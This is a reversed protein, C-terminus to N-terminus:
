GRIQDTPVSIAKNLICTSSVKETGQAARTVYTPIQCMAPTRERLGEDTRRTLARYSQKNLSQNYLGMQLHFKEVCKRLEDDSYDFQAAIVKAKELASSRSHSASALAM